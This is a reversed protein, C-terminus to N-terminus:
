DKGHTEGKPESLEGTRVALTLFRKSIKPEAQSVYEKWGLHQFRKPRKPYNAIAKTAREIKKERTSQRKRAAVANGACQRSCFTGRRTKRIFWRGCDGPCPGGLRYRQQNGLFRTFQFAAEDWGHAGVPSVELSGDPQTSIRLGTTFRELTARDERTLQMRRVDPSSHAQWALVMRRLRVADEHGYRKGQWDDRQLDANNLMAVVALLNESEEEQGMAVWAM